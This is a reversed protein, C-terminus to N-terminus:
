GSCRAERVTVLQMTNIWTPEHETSSPGFQGRGQDLRRRAGGPGELEDGGGSLVHLPLLPGTAPIGARGIGAGCGTDARYRCGPCGSCSSCRTAFAARRWTWERGMDSMREFRRSGSVSISSRITARFRAVFMRVHPPDGVIAFVPPEPRRTSQDVERCHNPSRYQSDSRTGRPHRQQALANRRQNLSDDAVDACPRREHGVASM